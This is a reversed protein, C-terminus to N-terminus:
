LRFGVGCRNCNIRADLQVLQHVLWYIVTALVDVLAPNVKIFKRLVLLTELHLFIATGFAERVIRAGSTTLRAAFGQYRM